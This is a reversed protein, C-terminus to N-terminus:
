DFAHGGPDRSPLRPLVRGLSENDLQQERRSSAEFCRFGEPVRIADVQRPVLVDSERAKGM